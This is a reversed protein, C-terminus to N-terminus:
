TKGPIGLGPIHMIQALSYIASKKISSTDETGGGTVPPHPIRPTGCFYSNRSAGIPPHSMSSLRLSSTVKLSNGGLDRRGGNLWPFLGMKDDASSLDCGWGWSQEM